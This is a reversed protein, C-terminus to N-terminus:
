ICLQFKSPQCQREHREGEGEHVDGGGYSGCVCVCEATCSLYLHELYHSWFETARAMNM